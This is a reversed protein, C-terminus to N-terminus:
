SRILANMFHVNFKSRKGNPGIALGNVSRAGPLSQGHPRANEYKTRTGLKDLYCRNQLYRRASFQFMLDPKGTLVSFRNVVQKMVEAQAVTNFEATLV